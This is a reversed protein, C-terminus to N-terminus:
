YELRPSYDEYAEEKIDVIIVESGIKVVAEWPIMLYKEQSFFSLFNGHNPIIISELNGTEKNVILDAQSIMGLRGGNHINILEKGELESLNM